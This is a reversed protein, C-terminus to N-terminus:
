DGTRPVLFQIRWNPNFTSRCAWCSVAEVLEAHCRKSLWSSPRNNRVAKKKNV